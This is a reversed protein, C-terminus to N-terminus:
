WHFETENHSHAVGTEAILTPGRAIVVITVPVAVVGVITFKSLLIKLHDSIKGPSPHLRVKLALNFHSVGLQSVGIAVVIPVYTLIASAFQFV